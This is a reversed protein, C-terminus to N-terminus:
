FDSFIRQKQLVNERQLREKEKERLPEKVLKDIDMANNSSTEDLNYLIEHIHTLEKKVCIEYDDIKTHLNEIFLEMGHIEKSIWESHKQLRKEFEEELRLNKKNLIEKESLILDKLFEMQQNNKKMINDFHAYLCGATACLTVFLTTFIINVEWYPMSQQM